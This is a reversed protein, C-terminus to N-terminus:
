RRRPVPRALEGIGVLELVEGVRAAIEDKAVKPARQLPYAVNEFATMHPWLAYSQFIM